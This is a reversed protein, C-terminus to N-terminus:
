EDADAQVETLSEIFSVCGRFGNAYGAAKDIDKESAVASAQQRLVANLLTVRFKVGTDSALFARLSLGDDKEWEPADIWAQYKVFQRLARLYRRM